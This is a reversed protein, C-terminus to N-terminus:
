PRKRRKKKSRKQQEPAPTPMAAVRAREESDNYKGIILNVAAGLSLRSGLRLNHAQAVVRLREVYKKYTRFTIRVNTAGLEDDRYDSM